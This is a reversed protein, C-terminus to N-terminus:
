TLQIDLYKYITRFDTSPRSPSPTPTPTPSPNPDINFHVTNCNLSSNLGQVIVGPNGGPPNQLPGILTFNYPPNPNIQYVKVNLNNNQGAFGCFINGNSEFLDIYCATLNPELQPFPIIGELVGNPYSYQYIEAITVGNVVRTGTFLLKNTTTLLINTFGLTNQNVPGVTFLPTM